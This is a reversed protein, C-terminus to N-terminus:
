KTASPTDKRAPRAAGIPAARSRSSADVVLESRVGILNASSTAAYILKDAKDLLADLSAGFEGPQLLARPLLTRGAGYLSVIAVRTGRPARGFGTTQGM